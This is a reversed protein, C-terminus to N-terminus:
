IEMREMQAVYLEEPVKSKGGYLVVIPVYMIEQDSRTNFYLTKMQLQCPLLEIYHLNNMGFSEVDRLIKNDFHESSQVSTLMHLGTRYHLKYKACQESSPVSTPM